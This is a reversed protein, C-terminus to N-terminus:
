SRTSRYEAASIKMRKLTGVRASLRRDYEAM